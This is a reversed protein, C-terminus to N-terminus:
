CVGRLSYINVKNEEEEREFKETETDSQEKESTVSQTENNTQTNIDKHVDDKNVDHKNPKTMGFNIIATNDPSDIIWYETINYNFFNPGRKTISVTKKLSQIAKRYL